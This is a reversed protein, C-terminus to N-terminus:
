SDCVDRCPRSRPSGNATLKKAHNVVCFPDVSAVRCWHLMMGSGALFVRASERDCSRVPNSLDQLARALVRVALDRYPRFTEDRVEDTSARRQTSRM